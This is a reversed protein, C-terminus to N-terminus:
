CPRRMRLIHHRERWGIGGLLLLGGLVAGPEPVPTVAPLLYSSDTVLYGSDNLKVASVSGSGAGSYAMIRSLQTSMLGTADTGFRITGSTWNWISLVGPWALSSSGTFSLGSGNDITSSSTLKLPGAFDPNAVTAVGTTVLSGGALVITRNSPLVDAAGLKFTGSGNFQLEVGSFVSTVAAGLLLTGGSAQTFSQNGELNLLIPVNITNVGSTNAANIAETSGLTITEAGARTITYDSADSTSFDLGRIIVSASM